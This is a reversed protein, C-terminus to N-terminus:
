YNFWEELKSWGIVVIVFGIISLLGILGAISRSSSDGNYGEMCYNYSILTTNFKKGLSSSNTQTTNLYSVVGSSLNVTYDTNLVLVTGNRDTVSFSTLACQTDTGTFWGSPSSRVTYNCNSNNTAVQGQSTEYCSTLTRTENRTPQKDTLSSQTAFIQGLLATVVIVGMFILILNGFNFNTQGKKNM